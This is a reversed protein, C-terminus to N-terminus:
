HKAQRQEQKTNTNTDTNTPSVQKRTGPNGQIPQEGEEVREKNLPNTLPTLLVQRAHQYRIGLGSAIEATSWDLASLARIKASTTPLAQVDKPVVKMGTEAENPPRGGQGRKDDFPLDTYRTQQVM